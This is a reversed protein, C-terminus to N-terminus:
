YHKNLFETVSGIATFLVVLTNSVTPSSLMESYVLVKEAATLFSHIIAASMQLSQEKKGSLM